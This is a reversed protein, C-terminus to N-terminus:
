PTPRCIYLFSYSLNFPTIPSLLPYVIKRPFRRYWAWDAASRPFIMNYRYTHVVRFGNEEILSQWQGATAFREIKQKHSVPYGTRWVHWLIDLLYYSNPLVLAVAGDPRLVRRMEALGHVPSVFHELSGINTAYDFSAREFPLREGDCLAFTDVETVRRATAIAAPSFDVGWGELGRRVALKTLHGEGCAVDLLRGWSVGVETRGSYRSLIGATGSSTPAPRPYRGSNVLKDLVWAYFSDTDRLRGVDEYNRNYADIASRRVTEVDEVKLREDVDLAM